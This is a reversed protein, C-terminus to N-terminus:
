SYNQTSNTRFNSGLNVLETRLEIYNYIEGSFCVIYRELILCLSTEMKM